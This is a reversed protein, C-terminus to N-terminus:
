LDQTRRAMADDWVKDRDQEFMLKADQPTTFWAGKTLEDELQGPGWGAYGFAVLSQKPGQNSGLDRLVELSATLAVRGDIKLTDPRDYDASHVM